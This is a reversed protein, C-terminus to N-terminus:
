IVLHVSYFILSYLMETCKRLTVGLGANHFFSDWLLDIITVRASMDAIGVLM